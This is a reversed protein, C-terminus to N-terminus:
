TGIYGVSHLKFITSICSDVMGNISICTGLCHLEESFLVIRVSGKPRGRGRSTGTSAASTDLEEGSFHSETGSRRRMSGPSDGMPRRKERAQAESEM